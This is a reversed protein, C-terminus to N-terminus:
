LGGLSDETKIFSNASSSDEAHGIYEDIRARPSKLICTSKFLQLRASLKRLINQVAKINSLM